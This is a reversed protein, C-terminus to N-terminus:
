SVCSLDYAPTHTLKYFSSASPLPALNNRSENVVKGTNQGMKTDALVSFIAVEARGAVPLYINGVSLEKTREPETFLLSQCVGLLCQLSQSGVACSLDDLSLVFQSNLGEEWWIGSQTHSLIQLRSYLRCKYGFKHGKRFSPKGSVLVGASSEQYEAQGQTRHLIM